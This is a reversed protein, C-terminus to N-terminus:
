VIMFHDADYVLIPIIYVDPEIVNQKLLFFLCNCLIYQLVCTM